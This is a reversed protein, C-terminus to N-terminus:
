WIRIVASTSRAYRSSPQTVARVLMRAHHHLYPIRMTVYGSAHTMARGGKLRVWHGDVRHQVVVWAASTGGYGDPREDMARVRYAVRQGFAPHRTSVSLSTRTAPERMTFFSDALPSANKPDTDVTDAWEVTARITYTGYPDTQTCLFFTSTGSDVNANPVVYDTDAVAGGPAVLQTRVARYSGDGPVDVAWHYPYDLCDDYLVGNVGATSGYTTGARAPAAAVALALVVVALLSRRM